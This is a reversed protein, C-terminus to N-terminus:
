GSWNDEYWWGSEVYEAVLKKCSMLKNAEIHSTVRYPKPLIGRLNQRDESIPNVYGWRGGYHAEHKTNMWAGWIGHYCSTDAEKSDLCAVAGLPCVRPRGM